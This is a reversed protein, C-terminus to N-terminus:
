GKAKKKKLKRGSKKEWFAIRCDEKCYKQRAHGYVYSTGCNACVRLKHSEVNETYVTQTPSDKKYSHGQKYGIPRRAEKANSNDNSDNSGNNSSENSQQAKAVVKSGKRTLNESLPPLTVVRQGDNSFEYKVIENKANSTDYLIPPTIPEPPPPTNNAFNQIITRFFTEVRESIAQWASVLINEEFDYQTPAATEEIGSGKKIVEIIIAMLIFLCLCIITFWGLGLGYNAVKKESKAVAKQNHDKVEGVDNKYTTETENLAATKNSQLAALEKGKKAQLAATKEAKKANISAIEALIRDKTSRYSEGKKKERRKYKKLREQQKETKADYSASIAVIESDYRAATATADNTYNTTIGNLRDARTQEIHATSKVEPPNTLNEVIEKAGNFSLAGSAGILIIVTLFFFVCM